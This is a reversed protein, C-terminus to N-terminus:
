VSCASAKRPSFALGGRSRRHHRAREEKGAPTL